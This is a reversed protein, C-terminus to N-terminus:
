YKWLHVRKGGVSGFDCEQCKYRYIYDREDGKMNDKTEGTEIMKHGTELWHEKARIAGRSDKFILSEM